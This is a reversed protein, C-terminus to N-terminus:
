GSPRRAQFEPTSSVYRQIADPFSGLIHGFSSLWADFTGAARVAELETIFDEVERGTWHEAEIPETDRPRGSEDFREDAIVNGDEGYFEGEDGQVRAGFHVAIEFMAARVRVSPNTTYIAGGSWELWTEVDAVRWTYSQPGSGSRGDRGLAAHSAAFSRWEDVRIPAQESEFWEAARTIHVDYGM